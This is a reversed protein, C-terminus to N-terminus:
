FLRWGSFTSRAESNSVLTGQMSSKIYVHDGATVSKVIVGTASQYNSISNGFSGLAGEVSGNMQITTGVNSHLYSVTKWTFVYMGSEPVTFIGDHQNYGSGIDTMVNDYIIVENVHLNVTATNVSVCFAIGHTAAPSVRALHTHIATEKAVLGHKRLGRKMASPDYTMRVDEKPTNAIPTITKNSDELSRAADNERAVNHKVLEALRQEREMLADEYVSLKTQLYALRKDGEVMTEEYFSVRTELQTIRRDRETERDKNETITMELEQLRAEQNEIKDMLKSLVVDNSQKSKEFQMLPPGVFEASMKPINILYLVFLYKVVAM